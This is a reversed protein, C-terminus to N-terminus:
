RGAVFFGAWYWPHQYIATKADEAMLHQAAPAELVSDPLVPLISEVTSSMLWAQAEGLAEVPRLKLEFFNEYFKTMLLLTSLEDAKWLSGVIARVGASLFTVPLSMTHDVSVANLASNCASLVILKASVETFNLLSMASFLEGRAMLLTGSYGLRKDIQGHCSVHALDTKALEAIFTEVRAAPGSLVTSPVFNAVVQAEFDSLVLPDITPSPPTPNNVILANSISSATLELNSAALNRVSYCYGVHKPHFLFQKHNPSKRIFGAHIPLTSLIGYPILAIFRDHTGQTELAQKIPMLIHGGLWELLHELHLQAATLDHQEYEALLFDKAAKTISQITDTLYIQIVKTAENVEALVIFCATGKDTPVLYVLPMRTAAREVHHWDSVTAFSGFGEITRIKRSLDDIRKRISLEEKSPGLDTRLQSSERIAEQEQLLAILQEAIHPNCKTLRRLDRAQESANFALNSSIELLLIGNATDDCLGSAYAGRTAFRKSDLLELRTTFNPQSKLHHRLALHARSYAKAAEIWNEQEWARDAFAEAIRMEELYNCDDLLADM